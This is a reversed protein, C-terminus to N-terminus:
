NGRMASIETELQALLEILNTDAQSRAALVQAKSMGNECHLLASHKYYDLASRARQAAPALRELAANYDM